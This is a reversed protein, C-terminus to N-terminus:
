GLLSNVIILASSNMALRYLIYGLSVGLVLCGILILIMVGVSLNDMANIEKDLKEEEISENFYIDEFEKKRIKRSNIKSINNNGEKYEIDTDLKRIKRGKVKGM